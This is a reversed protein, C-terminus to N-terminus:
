ACALWRQRIRSENASDTRLLRGLNPRDSRVSIGEDSSACQVLVEADNDVDSCQVNETPKKTFIQATRACAHGSRAADSLRSLCHRQARAAGRGNILRRPYVPPPSSNLPLPSVTRGSLFTWM